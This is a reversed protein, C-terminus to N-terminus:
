VLFLKFIVLILFWTVLLLIFGHTALFCLDLFALTKGIPSAPLYSPLHISDTNFHLMLVLSSHSSTSFVLDSAGRVTEAWSSPKDQRPSCEQLLSVVPHFYAKNPYDYTRNALAMQNVSTDNDISRKKM